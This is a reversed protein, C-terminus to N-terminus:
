KFAYYYFHKIFSTFIKINASISNGFRSSGVREKVSLHINKYRSKKKIFEFMLDTGISNYRDFYGIDRFIKFNYCKVGCMPDNIKFFFKCYFSFIKESIRYIRSREGIILDINKSILKKIKLLENSYFQNDADFTIVFDFRYNKLFEFGVALSADYGQNFSNKIVTAGSKKALLFTKDLSADDIVFVQGFKKCSNVVKAITKSENYAPIIIAIKFREM